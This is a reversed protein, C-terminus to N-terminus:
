GNESSTMSFVEFYIYLILISLIFAFFSSWYLITDDSQTKVIETVFSGSFGLFMFQLFSGVSLWVNVRSEKM